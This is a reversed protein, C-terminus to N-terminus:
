LLSFQLILGMISRVALARYLRKGIEGACSRKYNRFKKEDLGMVSTSSCIMDLQQITALVPHIPEIEVATKDRNIVVIPIEPSIVELDKIKNGVALLNGKLSLSFDPLILNLSLREKVLEKLQAVYLNEKAEIFVPEGDKYKAWIEIM